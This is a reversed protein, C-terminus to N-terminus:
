DRRATWIVAAVAYVAGAVLALWVLEGASTLWLRHTATLTVAAVALAGYLVARSRDGLALISFRHQRYMIMAFWGLTALFMLVIAQIAVSAGAGGGPLLAVLAALVLIIAVNRAHAPM